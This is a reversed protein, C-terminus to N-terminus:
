DLRFPPRGKAVNRLREAPVPLELQNLIELAEEGTMAKIVKLGAKELRAVLLNSLFVDDEVLLITKQNDVQEEPM